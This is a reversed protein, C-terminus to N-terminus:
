ITVDLHRGLAQRLYTHREEYLRPLHAMLCDVLIFRKRVPDHATPFAHIVVAAGLAYYGLNEALVSLQTDFIVDPREGQGVGSVEMMYLM